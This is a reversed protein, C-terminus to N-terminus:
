HGPIRKEIKEVFPLNYSKVFFIIGFIILIIGMIRKIKTVIKDTLQNKFRQALFIKCLDIGIFTSLTVVMFALFDYDNNNFQTRILLVTSIWFAVVGVNLLNLLFGNIFTKLYNPTILESQTIRRTGKSTLIFLGYIAVIFGGIRYLAPHQDIYGSIDQSGYYAVLICIIDAVIVGLDLAIASKIGKTLSTEILLFFVPGILVLSLLFGTGIGGLIVDIM